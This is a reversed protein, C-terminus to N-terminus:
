AGGCRQGKGLDISQVVRAIRWVGGDDVWDVVFRNSGLSDDILIDDATRPTGDPGPGKIVINDETCLWVRAAAQSEFSVREIRATDIDPSNASVINGAKVSELLFGVSDTPSVGAAFFARVREVNANPLRLYEERVVRNYEEVRARLAAEEAAYPRTNAVVTALLSSPPVTAPAVTTRVPLTGGFGKLTSAPVAPLTTPASNTANGGCGALGVVLCVPVLRWRM